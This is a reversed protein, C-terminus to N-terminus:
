DNKKNISPFKQDKSINIYETSIVSYLKLGGCLEDTFEKSSNEELASLSKGTPFNSQLSNYLSESM